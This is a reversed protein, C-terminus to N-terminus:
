KKNAKQASKQNLEASGSNRMITCVGKDMNFLVKNAHITPTTHVVDDKDKYEDLTFRGEVLVPDSKSVSNAVNSALSGWAKVSLWTTKGDVWEGSKAEKYRDTHAMRFNVYDKGDKEGVFYKPDDGVFGEASMRLTNSMNEGKM